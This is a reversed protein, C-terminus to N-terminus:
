ESDDENSVIELILEVMKAAAKPRTTFDAQAIDNTDVHHREALKGYPLMLASPPYLMAVNTIKDEFSYSKVESRDLDPNKILIIRVLDTSSTWQVQGIPPLEDEQHSNSQIPSRCSSASRSTSKQKQHKKRPPTAFGDQTHKKNTASDTLNTKKKDKKLQAKDVKETKIKTKSSPVKKKQKKKKKDKKQATAKEPTVQKSRRKAKSGQLDKSSLAGKAPGHRKSSKGKNVKSPKKQPNSKVM